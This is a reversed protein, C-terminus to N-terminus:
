PRNEQNKLKKYDTSLLDYMRRVTKIRTNTWDKHPAFTQFVDFMEFVSAWDELATKQAIYEPLNLGCYPMHSRVANALVNAEIFSGLLFDTNLNNETSIIADLFHKRQRILPYEIKRDIDAAFEPCIDPLPSTCKYRGAVTMLRDHMDPFEKISLEQMRVALEYFFDFSYKAQLIFLQLSCFMTSDPDRGFDEKMANVFADYQDSIAIFEKRPIKNSSPLRREVIAKVLAMDHINKQEWYDFLTFTHEPFRNSKKELSFDPSRFRDGTNKEFRDNFLDNKEKTYKMIREHEKRAPDFERDEQMIYYSLPHKESNVLYAYRCSVALVQIIVDEITLGSSFLTELHERNYSQLIYIGIDDAIQHMVPTLAM